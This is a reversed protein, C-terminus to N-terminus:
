RSTGKSELVRLDNAADSVAHWDARRVASLLYAVLAAHRGDHDAPKRHCPCTPENCDSYGGGDSEASPTFGNLGVVTATGTSSGTVNVIRGPEAIGRYHTTADRSDMHAHAAALERDFLEGATAAAENVPIFKKCSCPDDHRDDCYEVGFPVGTGRGIQHFVKSHGCSRCRDDYGITGTKTLQVSIGNSLQAWVDGDKVVLHEVRPENM